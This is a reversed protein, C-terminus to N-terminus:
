KGKCKRKLEKILKEYANKRDPKNLDYNYRKNTLGSLNGGTMDDLTRIILEEFANLEDTKLIMDKLGFRAFVRNGDILKRRLAKKLKKMHAKLRKGVNNSRGAYPKQDTSNFLYVGAGESIATEVATFILTCGLEKSLQGAVKNVFYRQESALVGRVNINFQVEIIGVNGSPDVFLAPNSNGYAYHNQTIPETLTGDYSDRTLFRSSEPSYYRARLYYSDIESDFQEGTFLFSNDSTGNHEILEGYPSYTYHDTVNETQDALAKTSGLADALYFLSQAEENRSLLDLGYTYEIQTGDAKSETIVQAYPTNTDILYTTTGNSTTKAIRNDNADYSYEVTDTPTIVKTLRNKADYEYSNEDQKILNGNDDYTLTTSDKQTLQDNDNYEYSTGIGNITKTLLNGVDDYGFTTITNKGNGDNSVKEEILRNAVDYQYEITKNGDEVIKVRNGSSDLTYAFSKLTNGNSDKHEINTIRNRSDYEYTTKMGNSYTIHTNRGIADYGYTITGQSDTVSELQNRKTYTKTITQTPTQIQIINGVGDYGYSITEGNTNTQTKLRGM